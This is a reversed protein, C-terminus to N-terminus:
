NIFTKIMYRERMFTIWPIVVDYLYEDHGINDYGIRTPWAAFVIKIQSDRDIKSEIERM